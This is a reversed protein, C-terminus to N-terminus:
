KLKELHGLLAKWSLRICDARGDFAKLAILVNLSESFRDDPAGKEVAEVFARCLSVAESESKGETEKLLLSTSAKSIACGIGHFYAEKPDDSLYLNYKDGCMPNYAEVVTANEKEKFHFPYKNEPLILRRYAAQLEEKSIMAGFTLLGSSPIM